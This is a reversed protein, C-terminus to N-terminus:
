LIFKYLNRLLVEFIASFVNKFIYKKKNLKLIKINCYRSYGEPVEIDRSM